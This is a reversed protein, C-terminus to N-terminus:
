ELPERTFHPHRRSAPFRRVDIVGAVGAGGLLELFEEM